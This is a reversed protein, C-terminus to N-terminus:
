MMNSLIKDLKEALKKYQKEMNEIKQDQEKQRDILNGNQIKLNNNESSLEKISQILLPVIKEYRVAKYGDKKEAVVEPLVEEIEQAIVGVDKKRNFYEDRVGQKDLYEETWDFNVGSIKNVKDLANKIPIINEKLRRDSSYYATINGYTAVNTHDANGLLITNSGLGTNGSASSGAERSGGIVISNNDDGGNLYARYGILVNNMGTGDSSGINVTADSGSGMGIFVNQKGKYIYNGALDGIATNREATTPHTLSSSGSLAERGIAVNFFSNIRAGANLGIATTYGPTTGASLANTGIATNSVGSTNSNLTNHGIAVNGYRSGAAGTGAMIGLSPTSNTGVEVDSLDDLSSAGGSSATWSLTGSGNNTLVTGNAGNAAPLTYSVSGSSNATFTTGTSAGGIKFTGDVHLLATPAITGIGVGGTGKPKLNVHQDTNEGAAYITNHGFGLGQTGNSHRFEIGESDANSDSTIYLPVKDRHSATTLHTLTRTENAIDLFFSPSTVGIGIGVKESSIIPGSFTTSAGSTGVATLGTMTTISNQTAQTVTGNLNGTVNGLLNASLTGKTITLDGSNSGTASTTGMIFNDESEDWGM